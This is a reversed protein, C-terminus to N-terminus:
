GAAAAAASAMSAAQRAACEKDAKLQKLAQKGKAESMAKKKEAKKKDM